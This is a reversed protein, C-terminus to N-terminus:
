IFISLPKPCQLLHFFCDLQFQTIGEVKELTEYGNDKKVWTLGGANIPFPEILTHASADINATTSLLYNKLM